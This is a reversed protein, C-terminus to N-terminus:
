HRADTVIITINKNPTSDPNDKGYFMRRLVRLPHGQDVSAAGDVKSSAPGLLICGRSHHPKNGAHLLIDTRTKTGSKVDAVELLFDGVKGLQGFEGQVFNKQSWFRLVGKYTGVPIALDANEFAGGIGGGNVGITGYILGDKDSQRVIEVVFDEALVPSAFSVIVVVFLSRLALMM